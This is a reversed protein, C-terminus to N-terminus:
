VNNYIQRLQRLDIPAYIIVFVATVIAGVAKDSRSELWRNGCLLVFFCVKSVRFFSFNNAADSRKVLIHKDREM